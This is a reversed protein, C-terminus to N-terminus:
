RLIALWAHRRRRHSGCYLVAYPHPINAQWDVAPGEGISEGRLSLFLSSRDVAEWGSGDAFAGHVLVVNKIAAKSASQASASELTVGTLTAALMAIACPNKM